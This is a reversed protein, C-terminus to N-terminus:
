KNAKIIIQIFTNIESNREFLLLLLLLIKTNTNVSVIVSPAM